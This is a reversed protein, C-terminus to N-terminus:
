DTSGATVRHDITVAAKVFYNIMGAADGVFSCFSDGCFSPNDTNM